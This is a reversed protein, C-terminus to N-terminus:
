PSRRAASRTRCRCPRSRSPLGDAARGWASQGAARRSAGPRADHFRRGLLSLVLVGGDRLLARVGDPTGNAHWECHCAPACRRVATSPRVGASRPKQTKGRTVIKPDADKFVASRPSENRPNSDWARRRGASRPRRGPGPAAEARGGRAVRRGRLRGWWGGAEGLILPPDPCTVRVQQPLKVKAATVAGDSDTAAGRRRAALVGAVSEARLRDEARAILPAGARRPATRGSTM